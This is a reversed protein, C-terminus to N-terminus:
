RGPRARRSRAKRAPSRRRRSPVRPPVGYDLPRANRGKGEELRALGRPYYFAQKLEKTLRGLLSFGRYTGWFQMWRFWLIEPLKSPFARDHVAHWADHLVNGTFLRLLDTLHFHTHPHIRR